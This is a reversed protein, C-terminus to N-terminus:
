VLKAGSGVLVNHKRESEGLTGIRKLCEHVEMWARTQEEPTLDAVIARYTGFAEQWMRMADMAETRPPADQVIQTRVDALGSGRMLDELMGKDGLTFLKSKKSAPRSQNAHRLLIAMPEAMIPNHEATAFVHAAFRAGPKLVRQIAELANHPSSFLPLSMRCVAADFLGDAQDVDEAVCELTEINRLGARKAKDRLLILMTQSIDSAVVSGGPGVREALQVTLDGAGAAVDLVRMGPRIGAMDIMAKTSNVLGASVTPEWKAWGLAALDWTNRLESNIPNDSMFDVPVSHLATTSRELINM